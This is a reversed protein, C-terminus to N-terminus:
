SFKGPFKSDGFHTTKLNQGSGFLDDCNQWLSKFKQWLPSIKGFRSVSYKWFMLEYQNPYSTKRELHCRNM